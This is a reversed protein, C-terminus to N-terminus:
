IEWEKPIQGDIYTTGALFLVNSGCDQSQGMLTMPLIRTRFVLRTRYVLLPQRANLKNRWKCFILPLFCNSKIFLNNPLMFIYWNQNLISLRCRLKLFDWMTVPKGFSNLISLMFAVEIKCSSTIPWTRLSFNGSKERVEWFSFFRKSKELNVKGTKLGQPFLAVIHSQHLLQVRFRLVLLSWSM